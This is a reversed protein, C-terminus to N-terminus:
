ECAFIILLKAPRKANSSGKGVPVNAPVAPALVVDTKFYGKTSQVPVTSQVFAIGSTALLLSTKLGNILNFYKTSLM